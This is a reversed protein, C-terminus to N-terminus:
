FEVYTTIAKYAHDFDSALVDDDACLEDRMMRRVPEPATPHQTLWDQFRCAAVFAPSM